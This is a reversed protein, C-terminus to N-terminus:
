SAPMTWSFPFASIRKGKARRIKETSGKIYTKFLSDVAQQKKGDTYDIYSNFIKHKCHESWTQALCEMEVDTINKGLGKKKRGAIVRPDLFYDRIAKMEDLNLALVRERSITM